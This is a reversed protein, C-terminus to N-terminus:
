SSPEQEVAPQGPTTASRGPDSGCLLGLVNKFYNVLMLKGERKSM